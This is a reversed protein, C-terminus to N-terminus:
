INQYGYIAAKTSDIKKNLIMFSSLHDVFGHGIDKMNISNCIKCKVRECCMLIITPLHDTKALQITKTTHEM